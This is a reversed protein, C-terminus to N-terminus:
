VPDSKGSVRERHGGHRFQTQWYDWVPMLFGVDANPIEVQVLARQRALLKVFTCRETHPSECLAFRIGPAIDGFRFALLDPQCWAFGGADILEGTVTRFQEHDANVVALFRV